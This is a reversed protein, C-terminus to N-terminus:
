RREDPENNEEFEDWPCIEEDNYVTGVLTAESAANECRRQGSMLGFSGCDAVCTVISGSVFWTGPRARYRRGTRDEESV